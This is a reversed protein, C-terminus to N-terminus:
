NLAARSEVAFDNYGVRGAEHFNTRLQDILKGPQRGPRTENFGPDIRNRGARHGANAEIRHRKRNEILIVVQHGNIFRSAQQNVPGADGGPLVIAEGQLQHPVLDAAM